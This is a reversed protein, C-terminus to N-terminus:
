PLHFWNYQSDITLKLFAWQGLIMMAVEVTVAAAFLLPRRGVLMRTGLAYLTLFPVLGGAALRGYAYFPFDRSPYNTKDFDFRLSLASLEAVSAVVVIASMLAVLRARPERRGYYVAAVLGVVPLLGATVKFFEESPMFHLGQAHWNMDGGFFSVCLAKLFDRLGGATFIPHHLLEAAPKMKLGRMVMRGGAGSWDGLVLRNRLGWLFLPLAASLLLPWAESLLKGPRGDRRLRLLVVAGVAVLASGNTLKVLVATAAMAGAAAALWKGPRERGYWRLLLLLTLLVVLPSLVDNSISFFVPNPFFATLAAVGLATDCGLYPRCFVFAFAVLAAYLPVNLFRVWYVCSAESLGLAHGLNYWVAALAYYAPPSQAEHNLHRKLNLNASNIYDRTDPRSLRERVPPPFKADPRSLQDGIRPPLKGSGGWDEARFRFETTGDLIMVKITDADLLVKLKDPWHGRAFKHILDFHADEDTDAFFPLAAAGFFIRGAALLCLASIWWLERRSPRGGPEPGVRAPLAVAAKGQVADEKKPRPPQRADASSPM